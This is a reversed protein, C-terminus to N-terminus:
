KNAKAVVLERFGKPNKTWCVGSYGEVLIPIGRSWEPPSVMADCLEELGDDAAEVVIEDHVHVVVPLRRRECEIIAAAMLDRAIAQVANECLKSGYLFGRGRPNDYVVTPIPVEPMGYFKCYAPVLMEIRANRYVISRGSPLEMHMDPGHMTFECKGAYAAGEQLCQKAANGFDSWLQVVKPYKARYLKVCAAPTLGVKKLPETPIDRTALTMEFKAGSMGFGCGLVISKCLQYDDYQEKKDVTRGFLTKGFDVYVSRSRDALIELTESDGCIWHLVRVEVTGYDAVVLNDARVCTKVASGLVQSLHVKAGHLETSERALTEFGARTLTANKVDIGHGVNGQMNHPQMRRGSWRGTHAGWYVLQDRARDDPDMAGLMATAKNAGVGVSAARLQLMERVAELPGDDEIAYKDPNALFEKISNKNVETLKYGLKEVWECVQKSSRPNVGNTHEEFSQEAHTANEELLSIITTLRHRDIPIGRDNVIHDVAMVDPEGYDKVYNYVTELEEVDQVNYDLLLAHAPGIAPAKQGPKLICLMEILRKGNKDKGRGGIALSLQDLGGPLGGARACPLTDFWTAEPLKLTNEWIAADFSANHAVLVHTEAIQALEQKAADSLDPGYKHIQGDVKVVCTLAKTTPHKSYARATGKKLDYESQTEFDLFAVKTSRFDLKM